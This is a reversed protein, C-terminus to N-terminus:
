EDSVEIIGDTEENFALIEQIEAIEEPTFNEESIEIDENM